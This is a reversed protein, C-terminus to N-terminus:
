PSRQVPITPARGIPQGGGAPPMAGLAGAPVGGPSGRPSVTLDIEAGWLTRSRIQVTLVRENRTYTLVSVASRVSTIEEWGYKPTNAKYFDYLPGVGNSDALVVRGIWADHAGFVFSRDMKIDSGTPIPVDSFQAFGPTGGEGKSATVTPNQSCAAIVCAASVATLVRLLASATM